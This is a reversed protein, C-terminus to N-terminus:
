NREEWGETKLIKRKEALNAAVPVGYLPSSSDESCEVGPNRLKFARIDDPHCLGLSHMERPLNRAVAASTAAIRKEYCGAAGCKLCAALPEDTMHQFEDDTHGCATCEYPYLPM